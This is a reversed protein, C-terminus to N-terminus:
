DFVCISSTYDILPRPSRKLTTGDFSCVDYRNCPIYNVNVVPEYLVVILMLPDITLEYDVQGRFVIDFTHVPMSQYVCSVRANNGLVIGGIRQSADIERLLLQQKLQKLKIQGAHLIM